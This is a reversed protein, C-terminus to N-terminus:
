SAAPPTWNHTPCTDPQSAPTWAMCPIKLLSSVSAMRSTSLVLAKLEKFQFAARTLMWKSHGGKATTAVLMYLPSAEKNTSPSVTYELSPVVWPLGRGMDIYPMAIRGKIWFSCPNYLCNHNASLADAPPFIVCSFSHHDLICLKPGENPYWGLGEFVQSRVLFCWKSVALSTKSSQSMRMVDVPWLFRPEAKPLSEKRLSKTAGFIDEHTSLSSFRESTAFASGCAAHAASVCPKIVFHVYRMLVVGPM